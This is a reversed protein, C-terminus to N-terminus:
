VIIWMDKGNCHKAATVRESTSDIILVNKIIVKGLGGNQNINVTSYRFGRHPPSYIYGDGADLTFVFYISDNMPQKIIIASQTSSWHGMLSDGNDMMQYIKNWIKIGNTYFLLNGLSDSISACREPMAMSSNTDALPTGTSFDLGAYTGFYWHWTEKQAHLSLGCFVFLIIFLNKM